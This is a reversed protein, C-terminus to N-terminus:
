YRTIIQSIIVRRNITPGTVSCNLENFIKNLSVLSNAATTLPYDKKNLGFYKQNELM